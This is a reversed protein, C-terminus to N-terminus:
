PEPEFRRDIVPGNAPLQTRNLDIV